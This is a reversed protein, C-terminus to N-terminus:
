LKGMEDNIGSSFLVVQSGTSSRVIEQVTTLVVAVALLLSTWEVIRMVVMGKVQADLMWFKVCTFTDFCSRYQVRLESLTSWCVASCGALAQTVM